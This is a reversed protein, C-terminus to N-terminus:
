TFLLVKQSNRIAEIAEELSLTDNKRWCSVLGCADCIVDRKVQFDGVEDIQGNRFAEVAETFILLFAQYREPDSLMVSYPDVKKLNDVIEQAIVEPKRTRDGVNGTLEEMFQKSKLIEVHHELLTMTM